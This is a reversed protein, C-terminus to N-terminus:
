SSVPAFAHVVLSVNPIHEVFHTSIVYRGERISVSVADEDIGVGALASDFMVMEKGVSDFRTMALANGLRDASMQRLAGGVDFDEPAYYISVLATLLDDSHFSTLLPVDGVVIGQAGEFEFTSVYGTASCAREYDSRGIAVCNGYGDRTGLVGCWSHATDRAICM